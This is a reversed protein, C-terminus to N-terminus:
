GSNGGRDALAFAGVDVGGAALEAQGGFAVRGSCRTLPSESDDMEPERSRSRSRSGLSARTSPEFEALNALCILACWM